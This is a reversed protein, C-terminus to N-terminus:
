DINMGIKVLVEPRTCIPLRNMQTHLETGRNFKMTEQKAYYPLGPTNVTEMFDAPAMVEQFTTQTGTPFAFAYDDDVFKRATGDPSTTSSEIPEFVIGAFTFRGSFDGSLQQQTNFYKFAEKVSAHKIFADYFTPSCFCHVGTAVDGKLNTRIHRIVKRCKENADTSSDDLDFDQTEQSIGFETYLNYLTTADGDLIIGQLAKIRLWEATLEHKRRMEALKRAMVEAESTVGMEQGFARIGQIEEPRIVDELPFHPVNFNRIKRKATTNKPAPGGRPQSVLLNLVGNQEEVIFNTTTIPMSRFIGMRETTGIFRDVDPVRNIAMTMSIVDFGGATFPNTIPM